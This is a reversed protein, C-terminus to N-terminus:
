FKIKKAFDAAFDSAMQMKERSKCKKFVPTKRSSKSFSQCARCNCIFNIRLSMLAEWVIQKKDGYVRTYDANKRGREDGEGEL